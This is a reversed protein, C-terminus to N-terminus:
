VLNPLDGLVTSFLHYGFNPIEEIKQPYEVIEISQWRKFDLSFHIYVVTIPKRYDFTKDGNCAQWRFELWGKGWKWSRREGMDWIQIPVHTIETILCSVWCDNKSWTRNIRRGSPGQKIPVQVFDLSRTADDFIQPVQSEAGFFVSM